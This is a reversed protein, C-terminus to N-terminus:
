TKETEWFSSTQAQKEGRVSKLRLVDLDSVAGGLGWVCVCVTGHSQFNHLSM